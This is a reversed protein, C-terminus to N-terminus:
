ALLALARAMAPDRGARLDAITEAVRIDPQVGGDPAPRESFYGILPLDVELGCPLRVFFYGGGNIGRLNGGTPEGVLTALKHTKLQLAFQFTASSNVPGILAMVRGRFRPGKPQLPADVEGRKLDFFGDGRPVAADGWDRFSPDWTKLYPRLADPARRYRTRPAFAAPPLPADILRRIIADGCDLGGECARVDIILGTSGRADIETMARDIWAEWAFDSDYVAWDPLTLIATQGQHTLTWGFPTVPPPALPPRAAAAIPALSLHRTRGDPLTAVIRFTSGVPFVLPYLIDFTEWKDRGAVELLARRKGDNHGDARALPLLAALIAAPARGDIARIETGAPLEGAGLTVMRDGIWRFHFPLCVPRAFLRAVVADTQNFPNAHTHGCRIGATFRTLALYRKDEADSAQFARDLAAVSRAFDRPSQYRYLGPHLTAFADRVISIDPAAIGARLPSARAILPTAILAAILDRRSALM